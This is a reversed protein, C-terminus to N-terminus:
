ILSLIEAGNDTILITNEYHSSVKGDATRVTWNDNDTFVEFNGLNIMPEVAFTMNKKIKIGKNKTSYNPIEPDEHVKSGIGHGVYDEVVGYGFQEIFNEIATSIDNIHNDPIAYKIGEFFAQRTREVLLRIDDSVKGIIHTRAADSHYGKYDVGGDIKLIDGDKLIVEKKPIGHIVEDNLSICFNGPFDYLHYFSCKANHKKVIREAFKDIELTSLGPKIYEAVENHVEALIKGAERMLEIERDSKISVM